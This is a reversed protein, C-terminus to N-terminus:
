SEERGEEEKVVCDLLFCSSLSQECKFVSFRFILLLNGIKLNVIKGMGGYDLFISYMKAMTYVPLHESAHRM